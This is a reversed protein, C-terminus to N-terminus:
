LVAWEIGFFLSDTITIWKETKPLRRNYLREDETLPCGILVSTDITRFLDIVKEVVTNEYFCDDDPWALLDGVAHMVGENRAKVANRENQIIHRISLRSSYNNLISRVTNPRDSQDVVIVEFDKRSQACLSDLM